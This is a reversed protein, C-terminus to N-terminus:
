GRGFFDERKKEVGVLAKAAKEAKDEPRTEREKETEREGCTLSATERATTADLRRMERGKM